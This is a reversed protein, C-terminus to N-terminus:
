RIDLGIAQQVQSLKRDAKIKAKAAGEELVVRILNDKIIQQYREQIPAFEEIITDAVLKKFAGYQFDKVEDEIVKISTNRLAAVISLLNSIGPQNIPDYQVKGVTDTVASMVKKRIQEPTDKFYITGKLDHESKSMKKEPHSLSMIRSGVKPILPEPVTFLDGYRNNMRSAIDRTLEVHQKQDEGVPVFDPDYILIDAAMLTPYTYLGGTLLANKDKAKDKYQTMRNLEGVYTNCNLIWGLQAHAMVDSQLFLTSRKPDLGCAIYYAICDSLNEQLVDPEIPLTICHLNAIFVLMDYDNQYKVFERIAGIYSGLHLQGSPKIGSLMTKM